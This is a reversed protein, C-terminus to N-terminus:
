TQNPPTAMGQEMELWKRDIAAIQASTLETNEETGLNLLVASLLNTQKTHGLSYAIAKGLFIQQDGSSLQYFAQLLKDVSM